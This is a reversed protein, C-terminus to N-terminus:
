ISNTIKCGNAEMYIFIRLLSIVFYLTKTALWVIRRWQINTPPTLIPDFNSNESIQLTSHITIRNCCADNIKSAHKSLYNVNKFLVRSTQIKYKNVKLRQQRCSPVPLLQQWAYKWSGLHRILMNCCVGAMLSFTYIFTFIRGRFLQQRPPLYLIFNSDNAMWHNKVHLCDNGYFIQWWLSYTFLRWKQGGIKWKKPTFTCAAPRCCHHDIVRVFHDIM